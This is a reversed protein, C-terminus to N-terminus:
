GPRGGGYNTNRIVKALVQDQEVIGDVLKNLLYVNEEMEDAILKQENVALTLHERLADGSAGRWCTETEARLAELRAQQGRVEEVKRMLNTLVARARDIDIAIESMNTATGRHLVQDLWHNFGAWIDDIWSM